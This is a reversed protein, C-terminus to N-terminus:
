RSFRGGCLENLQKNFSILGPIRMPSIPRARTPSTPSKLNDNRKPGSVSNVHSVRAARLHQRCAPYSSSSFSNSDHYILHRSLPRVLLHSVPAVKKVVHFSSEIYIGRDYAICHLLTANTRGM